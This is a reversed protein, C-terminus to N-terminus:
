VKIIVSNHTDSKEETLAWQFRDAIKRILKLGLGFGTSARSKGAPLRNVIQLESGRQRIHITGRQTHQFANRILNSVLMQYAAQPLNRTCPTTELQLAVDKGALLYRLTQIEQKLLQELNVKSYQLPEQDNRNLWLLTETIGKMSLSSRIMRDRVEREKPSPVPSIKDLLAADSRLTAIPTRLEHSAYGLFENERKMAEGMSELSNHIIASLENLERYQFDPAKKDISELRLQSAWNYLAQAPQSLGRFSWSILLIFSLLAGLGWLAIQVMPDVYFGKAPRISKGINERVLSVYRSAGSETPALMLFYGTEPPAFYWWNQFHKFYQGPKQPPAPFVQKIKEPVHDWDAAVHYGLVQTTKKGALPYSAALIMQEKRMLDFGKLFFQGSQYSLLFSMCLGLFIIRLTIHKKLSSKKTM